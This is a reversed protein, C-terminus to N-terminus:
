FRSTHLWEIRLREYITTRNRLAVYPASVQRKRHKLQHRCYKWLEGGNEKDTRIYVYITEYVSKNSQKRLWGAIQAPSWQDECM